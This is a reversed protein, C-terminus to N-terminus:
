SGHRPYRRPYKGRTKKRHKSMDVKLTAPDIVSMGLMGRKIDVRLTDGKYIRDYKKKPIELTCRRRGDVDLDVCYVYYPAGRTYVRRSVRRTHYRTERYCRSVLVDVTVASSDSACAMNATLVICLLVPGVIILQCLWSIVANRRGTLRPWVRMMPVGAAVTVVAVCAVPMWWEVLTESLIVRSGAVCFLVIAVSFGFLIWRVAEGTTKRDM